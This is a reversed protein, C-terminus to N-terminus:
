VGFSSGTKRYASPGINFRNKFLKSFSPLSEYGCLEAIEDISYNTSSLLRRARMLRWDRLYEIPTRGIENQFKKAFSSRSMGAIQALDEVRWKDQPNTHIASLAKSLSNDSIARIFGNNIQSDRETAQRIAQIFIVEILRNIIATSGHSELNAELSLLKMATSLWPSAELDQQRLHIYNPLISIAPHDIAEDFQCYGCLLSATEIGEGVCLTQNQIAGNAILDLLNEPQLEPSAKIMQSEGNPVLAIDGESLLVPGDNPLCLWCSGRLVIHFRIRRHERPVYVAFEGSLKIRFYIESSIRLTSFIESLLDKTDMNCVLLSSQIFFAAHQFNVSPM